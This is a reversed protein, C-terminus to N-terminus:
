TKTQTILQIMHCLGAKQLTVEKHRVMHKIIFAPFNYTDNPKHHESQSLSMNQLM